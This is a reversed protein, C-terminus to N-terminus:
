ISKNHTVNGEQLWLVGSLGAGILRFGGPRKTMQPYDGLTIEHSPQIQSLLFQDEITVNESGNGSQFLYKNMMEGTGRVKGLAETSQPSGMRYDTMLTGTGVVNHSYDIDIQSAADFAFAITVLIAILARALDHLPENM